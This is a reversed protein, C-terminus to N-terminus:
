KGVLSPTLSTLPALSRAFPRAIPGTSVDRNKNTGSWLASYLGEVVNQLTNLIVDATLFAEALCVRRNASDDLTREMWQVSATGLPDKAPIISQHTFTENPHVLPSLNFSISINLPFSPFFFSLCFFRSLLLSSCFFLCVSLAASLFLCLFVSLCSCM